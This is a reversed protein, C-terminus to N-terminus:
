LLKLKKTNKANTQCKGQNNKDEVFGNVCKCRAFFTMMVCKRNVDNGCQQGIQIEDGCFNRSKFIPRFNNPDFEAQPLKAYSQFLNMFYLFVLLVFM